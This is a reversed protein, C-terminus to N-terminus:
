RVIDAGSPIIRDRNDADRAKEDLEEAMGALILRVREDVLSYALDRCHEAQRRLQQPTADVRFLSV